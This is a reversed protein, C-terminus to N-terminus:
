ARVGTIEQIYNRLGNIGGNDFERIINSGIVAMDATDTFGLVDEKTRIGFGVAIPMSTFSLINALFDALFEKENLTGGTIGIQSTCYIFGTSVEINKVLREDSMNPSVVRINALDNEALIRGFDDNSEEDLASDPAIVGTVGVSKLEQCATKLKRHYFINFYSMVTIPINVQKRIKELLVLAKDFEMGAALAIDSAKQIAPGDALPDSYPIQLELVDAGSEALTLIIEESEEINPYGLIAHTMLAVPKRKRVERFYESYSFM